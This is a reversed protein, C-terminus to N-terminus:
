LRRTVMSSKTTGTLVGHRPEGVIESTTKEDTQIECLCNCEFSASEFVHGFSTKVKVESVLVKIRM